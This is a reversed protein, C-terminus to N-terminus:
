GLRMNDIGVIRNYVYYVALVTVLLVGGMATALSWDLTNQMHYAIRNSILTGKAGGVLAPTIYYGIALVFVLLSGASIGSYTLPFYIRRFAHFPTSGMSTAARMLTPSITKMVSYLPLVMFPLLIQTMAIFTGMMNYMMVLREQDDVINLFVLIDNLVGQTQLLVMWSSTRVLLSTWFPLLVCIMLLNSYKGPLTALLHAIPFALLLCFITVGVAVFITRLWLIVNIRMDEPKRKISGDFDQELDFTTLYKRGHYPVTARQIANWTVTQGWKKHAKLFQDKFNKDEDFKKAKRATKKTLSSMGSLEYNLRTAIKGQEKNDTAIRLDKFFAKFVVENPLGTGDWEHIEAHTNILLANLQTNDISRFLLSGIPFIYTFLIFLLLPAVLLLATRRRYSEVQKLKVSLLQGDSTTIPQTV